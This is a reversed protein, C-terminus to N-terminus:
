LAAPELAPEARAASRRPKRLRAIGDTLAVVIVMAVVVEALGLTLYGVVGVGWSVLLWHVVYMRTVRSSWGHVIGLAGRAPLRRTVQDCLALWALVVGLVGPVLFPPLAWYTPADLVPRENLLLALGAVGLLVGAFGVRLFEAPRDDTRRLREGIVAGVLPFVLWPFVPYFVNPATAWLVGLLADLAPEGTRLGRLVPAVLVVGAAIALWAAGPRVMARFISLIVLSAGALQLIDVMTLLSLPTHPRVQELTLIGLQEGLVLPATGRAINFVYAMALLWLGRMALSRVDMRSSFALSAGMLTMFVPAALPGGAFSLVVGLPSTWTSTEGWHRLVHILIMFLVALGRALDLAEVRGQVLAHDKAPQTPHPPM